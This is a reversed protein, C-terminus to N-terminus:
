GAPETKLEIPIFVDFRTGKGLESSFRITGHHHEVCQRVITLGLGTGPTKGVNSGRQFNEFLKQQDEPSIGIGEDRITFRAVGESCDAEFWITTGHPSYKVANSLLNSLIRHLMKPDALATESNRLVQYNLHHAHDDILESEQVVRTCFEEINILEPEFTLKGMESQTAILIDDLLQTMQSISKQIKNYGDAQDASIGNERPVLSRSYLSIVTLPRRLEHSAMGVLGTKLRNLEKERILAEDLLSNKRALEENKAELSRKLDQIMLHANVRSLVEEHQFPKTIYDVAGLSFGRVKDVTDALATMFIVPIDATEENEKLIRCTEFGDIGPMLVDLLILDPKAFSARQIAEEGSKAALLKFGHHKLADLLVNLNIPNDDVMLITHKRAAEITM